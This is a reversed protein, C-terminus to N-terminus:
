RKVAGDVNQTAILTLEVNYGDLTEGSELQTKISDYEIWTAVKVVISEGPQCLVYAGSNSDVGVNYVNLASDSMEPIVKELTKKVSGEVLMKDTYAFWHLGKASGKNAVNVYIRAPITGTNTVPIEQVRIAEDFLIEDPDAFSTAADFAVKEKAVFRTDVSLDGFVFSDGSDIIGSDYFWASTPSMLSFYGVCLVLMFAMVSASIKKAKSM